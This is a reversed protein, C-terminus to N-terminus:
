ETVEVYDTQGCANCTPHFLPDTVLRHETYNHGCSPCKYNYQPM